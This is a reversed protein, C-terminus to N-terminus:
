EDINKKKTKKTNTQKNRTKKTALIHCLELTQFRGKEKSLQCFLHYPLVNCQAGTDLKVNVYQKNIFVKQLWDKQILPKTELVLLYHIQIKMWKSAKPQGKIEASLAKEYHNRWKNVNTVFKATPAVNGRLTSNDASKILFYNRRKDINQRGGIVRGPPKKVYGKVSHVERDDVAINKLRSYTIEASKCIEVARELNLDKKEWSANGLQMAELAALSVM